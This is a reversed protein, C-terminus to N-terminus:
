WDRYPVSSGEVTVRRDLMKEIAAITEAQNPSPGVVVRRIPSSVSTRDGIAFPVYPAVMSKRTRYQLASKPMQFIVIRWEREDRFAESKLVSGALSIRRKFIIEFLIDDKGESNESEELIDGIIARTEKDAFGGIYRIKRLGAWATGTPKSGRHLATFAEHCKTLESRDFGIAVGASGGYGRWQSLRDGGDKSFCVVYADLDLPSRLIADILRLHKRTESTAAKTRGRIEARVLDYILRQESTDNLYRIHSAWLEGHNMINVFSEVTTYHYLLRDPLRRPTNTREM